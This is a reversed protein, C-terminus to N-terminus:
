WSGTSESFGCVRQLVFTVFAPADGGGDLIASAQKRLEREYFSPLPEPAHAAVERQRQADLLLGGHRLRDWGELELARM